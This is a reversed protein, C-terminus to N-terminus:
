LKRYVRLMKPNDPIKTVGYVRGTFQKGAVVARFAKVDTTFIPLTNCRVQMALLSPELKKMMEDRLSQDGRASIAVGKELVYPVIQGKRPTTAKVKIAPTSKMSGTVDTIEKKKLYLWRQYLQNYTIGKIESMLSTLNLRENGDKKIAKLKREQKSTLKVKPM